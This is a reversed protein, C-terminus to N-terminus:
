LPSLWIETNLDYTAIAWVALPFLLNAPFAALFQRDAPTTPSARDLGILVGIAGLDPPSATLAFVRLLHLLRLKM